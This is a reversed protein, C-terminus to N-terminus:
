VRRKKKLRLSNSHPIPLRFEIGRFWPLKKFLGYVVFRFAWLKLSTKIRFIIRLNKKILNKLTPYYYIRYKKLNNIIKILLLKSRIIKKSNKKLINIKVKKINKNIKNNKLKKRKIKNIIIKNKIIKLDEIKNQFNYDFDKINKKHLVFINKILSKRIKKIFNKGTGKIAYGTRKVKKKFGSAGVNTKCLVNGENNLLTLFLNKRNLRILLYCYSNYLNKLNQNYLDDNNNVLNKLYIGLNKYKYGKQIYKGKQFDLFRSKYHLIEAPKSNLFYYFYKLFYKYRLFVCFLIKFYFLNFFQRVSDIFDLYIDIYLILDSIYEWDHERESYLWDMVRHAWLNRYIFQQNFISFAM